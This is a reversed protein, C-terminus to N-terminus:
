EAHHSNQNNNNSSNRGLVRVVMTTMYMRAYRYRQQCHQRLTMATTTPSSSSEMLTLYLFCFVTVAFAFWWVCDSWFYTSSHDNKHHQTHHHHHEKTIEGTNHATTRSAAGGLLTDESSESPLVFREVGSNSFSSATSTSLLSTTTTSSLLSSPPSDLLPDHLEHQKSGFVPMIGGGNAHSLSPRRKVPTKQKADPPVNPPAQIQSTQHKGQFLPFEIERGHGPLPLEPENHKPTPSATTTVSSDKDPAQSHASEVDRQFQHTWFSSTRSSPHVFMLIYCSMVLSVRLLKGFRSHPRLAMPSYANNNHSYSSSSELRRFPLQPPTRTYLGILDDESGGSQTTDTCTLSATDEDTTIDSEVDVEPQDDEEFLQQTTSQSLRPALQQLRRPFYNGDLELSNNTNNNNTHAHLTPFVLNDELTTPSAYQHFTAAQRNHNSRIPTSNSSSSPVLFPGNNNRNNGSTQNSWTQARPRVSSTGIM